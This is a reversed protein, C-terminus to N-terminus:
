LFQLTMITSPVNQQLMNIHKSISNRLLTNSEKLEKIQEM